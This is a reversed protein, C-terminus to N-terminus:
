ESHESGLARVVTLETLALTEKKAANDWSLGKKAFEVGKASIEERLAAEELLRLIEEGFASVNPFPVKVTGEYFREFSPLDWLVAPLGMALAEAIVLGFGEYTSPFVLLSAGSFADLKTREDVYGSISISDRIGMISADSLFAEIKEQPTIGALIHLRAGKNKKSVINWIDLLMRSGKRESLVGVYLCLAADKRVTKNFHSIDVGNTVPLVNKDPFMKVLEDLVQPNDLALIGSCRQFALNMLIGRKRLGDEIHHVVIVLPKRSLLSVAYAYLLSPGYEDYCVVADMSTSFSAAKLISLFLRFPNKGAYGNKISCLRVRDLYHPEPAKKGSTDLVFTVDFGTGLRSYIEITRTRGGNIEHLKLPPLIILKM